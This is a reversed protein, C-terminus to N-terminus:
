IFSRTKVLMPILRHLGLAVLPRKWRPLLYMLYNGRCVRVLWEDFLTAHTFDKVSKETGAVLQVYTLKDQLEKKMREKAKTM